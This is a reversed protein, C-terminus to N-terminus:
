GDAPDIVVKTAGRVRLSRDPETFRSGLDEHVSVAHGAEDLRWVKAWVDIGYLVGDIRALGEIDFGPDVGEAYLGTPEAVSLGGSPPPDVRFVEQRDLPMITDNEARVMALEYAGDQSAELDGSVGLAPGFDSWPSCLLDCAYYHPDHTIDNAYECLGQDLVDLAVRYIMGNNPIGVGGMGRVGLLLEDGLFGLGSVAEQWYCPDTGASQPDGTCGEGACPRITWREVAIQQETRSWDAVEMRLIGWEDNAVDYSVGYLGLTESWALEKLSLKKLSGDGVSLEGLEEDFRLKGLEVLRCDTTGDECTADPDYLHIASGLYEGDDTLPINTQYLGEASSPKGNVFLMVEGSLGHRAKPCGDPCAVVGEDAGGEDTEFDLCGALSGGLVAVSVARIFVTKM